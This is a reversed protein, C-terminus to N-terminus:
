PAFSVTVKHVPIGAAQAPPTPPVEKIVPPAVGAAALARTVAAARREGLAKDAGNDADGYGAVAISAPHQAAAREAILTVIKQAEPTLEAVGTGFLIVFEQPEARAGASLSLLAAVLAALIIRGMARM